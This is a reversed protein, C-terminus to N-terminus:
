HPLSVRHTILHIHIRSSDSNLECRHIHRNILISQEWIYLNHMGLEIDAKAETDLPAVAVHHTPRVGNARRGGAAGVRVQLDATQDVQGSAEDRESGVALLQGCRILDILM